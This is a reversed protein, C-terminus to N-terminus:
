IWWKSADLCLNFLIFLNIRSAPGPGPQSSQEPRPWLSVIPHMWNLVGEDWDLNIESRTGGHPIQSEDRVPDHLTNTITTEEQCTVWPINWITSLTKVPFLRVIFNAPPTLLTDGLCQMLGTRAVWLDCGISSLAVFAPDFKVCFLTQLFDSSLHLSIARGLFSM